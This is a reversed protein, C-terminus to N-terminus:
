SRAADLRRIAFKRRSLARREYRDLIAFEGALEKLARARRELPSEPPRNSGLRANHRGTKEARLMCM